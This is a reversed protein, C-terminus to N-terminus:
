TPVFSWSRKGRVSVFGLLIALAGSLLTTAEPVSAALAAGAGPTRGFNGRWTQYDEPTASGPTVGGENQLPGGNRWLVYDAADVVGNNNFDGSVAPRVGGIVDLSTGAAVAVDDGLLRYITGLFVSIEGEAGGAREFFGYEIKYEGAALNIPDSDVNHPGSLVDDEIVLDGADALDGDRNLDILLRQGDDSNVRFIVNDKATPVVLTGTGVVYFDDADAIGAEAVGPPRVGRTFLGDTGTDLFNFTDYVGTKPFGPEMDAPNNRLVEADALTLLDPGPPVADLDAGVTRVMASGNKLAIGGSADGFVTQMGIPMGPPRPRYGAEGSAGGGREWTTFEFKYEGQALNVLPSREPAGAGQLGLDTVVSERPPGVDEFTGDQDLDIRLRNGDDTDTFFDYPGATNVVLTGTVQTVFDSTSGDAENFDIGPFPHDITFQGTGGSEFFDVEPITGMDTFRAPLEGSLYKDAVATSTIQPSGLKSLYTTITWLAQAESLLVSHGVILALAWGGYSRLPM